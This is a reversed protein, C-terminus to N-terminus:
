TSPRASASGTAREPSSCRGATADDVRQARESLWPGLAARAKANLDVTRQKDGKGILQIKGDRPSVWVDELNLRCLEGVRCATYFFTNIIANGRVGRKAAARLVAKM